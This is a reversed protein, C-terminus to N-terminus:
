EVDGGENSAAEMVDAIAEDDDEDVHLNEYSGIVNFAEDLIKQIQVNDPTINESIRNLVDKFYSIYFGMGQIMELETRKIASHAFITSYAAFAITM